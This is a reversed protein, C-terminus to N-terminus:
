LMLLDHVCCVITKAATEMEEIRNDTSISIRISSKADDELIGMSTLVTSPKSEYSKCASGASVCIGKTDLMLLLTEADVGDFRMSITKYHNGIEPDGNIHMM